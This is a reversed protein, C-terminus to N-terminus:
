RNLEKKFLTEKYSFGVTVCASFDDARSITEKFCDIKFHEIGNSSMHWM